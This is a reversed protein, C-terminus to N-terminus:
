GKESAVLFARFDGFCGNIHAQQQPETVAQPQVLGVPAGSPPLHIPNGTPHIGIPEGQPAIFEQFGSSELDIMQEEQEITPSSTEDTKNLSEM